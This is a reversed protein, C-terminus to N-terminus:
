KNHGIAAARLYPTYKEQTLGQFKGPSLCLVYDLTQHLQWGTAVSLTPLHHQPM